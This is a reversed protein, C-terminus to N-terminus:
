RIVVQHFPALDGDVAVARCRCRIRAPVEAGVAGIEIAGSSTVRSRALWGERATAYRDVGIRQAPWVLLAATIREVEKAAGHVNRDRACPDDRQSHTTSLRSSHGPVTGPSSAERLNHRPM